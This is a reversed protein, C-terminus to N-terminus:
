EGDGYQEILDDIHEAFLSDCELWPAPECVDRMYLRFVHLIVDAVEHAEDLEDVLEEVAEDALTLVGTLNFDGVRRTAVYKLTKPPLGNLDEIM